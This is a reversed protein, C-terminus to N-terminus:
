VGRINQHKLQIYFSVLPMFDTLPHRQLMQIFFRICLQYDYSLTNHCLTQIM